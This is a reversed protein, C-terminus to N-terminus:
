FVTLGKERMTEEARSLADKEPLIKPLTDPLGLARYKVAALNHYALVRVGVVNSLGALFEGVGRHLEETYDGLEGM